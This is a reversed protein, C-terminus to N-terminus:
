HKMIILESSYWIAIFSNIEIRINLLILLNKNIMTKKILLWRLLTYTETAARVEPAYYFQSFWHFNCLFAGRGAICNYLCPPSLHLRFYFYSIENLETQLMLCKEIIYWHFRWFFRKKLAGKQHLMDLNLFSKRAMGFVKYSIQNLKIWLSMKKGINCYHFHSSFRYYLKRRTRFGGLNFPLRSAISLCICVFNPDISHKVEYM